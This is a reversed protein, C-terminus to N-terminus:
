TRELDRGPVMPARRGFRHSTACCRIFSVPSVLFTSVVTWCSRFSSPSGFDTESAESPTRELSDVFLSGIPFPAPELRRFNWNVVEPRDMDIPQFEEKLRFKILQKSRCEFQFYILLSSSLIGFRWLERPTAIAAYDHSVQILASQNVHMPEFVQCNSNVVSVPNRSTPKKFELEVMLPFHISLPSSWITDRVCLIVLCDDDVASGSRLSALQFQPLNQVKFSSSFTLCKQICAPHVDPSSTQPRFYQDLFYETRFEDLV